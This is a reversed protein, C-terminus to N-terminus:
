RFGFRRLVLSEAAWALLVGLANAAYDAPDYVNSMFGFGDTAEFLDVAATALCATWLSRFREPLEVNRLIFYVAFSVSINGAYSRVLEEHPGSYRGKLLLVATGSLVLAVNVARQNM